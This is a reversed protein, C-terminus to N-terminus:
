LLQNDPSCVKTPNSRFPVIEFYGWFENRLQFQNKRVIEKCCFINPFGITLIVGHSFGPEATSANPYLYAFESYIKNVAHSISM